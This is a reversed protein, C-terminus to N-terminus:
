KAYVTINSCFGSPLLSKIKSVNSSNVTFKNNESKLGVVKNKGKGGKLDELKAISIGRFSTNSLDEILRVYYVDNFSQNKLVVFSAQYDYKGGSPAKKFDSTDLYNLSVAICNGSKPKVIGLKNARVTYEVQTIFKKADEVYLEKRNSDIVKLVAEVAVTMLISLIILSALLEVLTFGGKKNIMIM